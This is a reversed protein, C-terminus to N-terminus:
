RFNYDVNFFSKGTAYEIGLFEVPIKWWLLVQTRDKKWIAIVINAKSNNLRIDKITISFENKGSKLNINKEFAKNTAQFYTKADGRCEITLDIDVDWYEEFSEYMISLSFSDGPTLISKNVTLGAFHIKDTGSCLKEVGEEKTERFLDLYAQTGEAASNFYRCKGHQMLVVRSAFTSISHMNHSVLITATGKKRLEGIKNVCKIQFGEDGVALVEDILLIDPECFVAVAFGLRVFMGSSYHKVPTDLFDGIDAFDVIADFKKDIESKSMGLIAGNVYINDRGSLMPHFGAGVAILAGVRGKITVKGKDPWFIGNLMKLLTTKGSGNAGILGLTEGRKVEFSVNDVAWFENKRLFACGSPIGIVNRSIDLMGYFMSRRLSKCYKKSVNEVCIVTDQISPKSILSKQITYSQDLPLSEIQETM